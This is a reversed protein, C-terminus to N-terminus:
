VLTRATWQVYYHLVFALYLAVIAGAAVGAGLTLSRSSEGSRLSGTSKGGSPAEPTRPQQVITPDTDADSRTM